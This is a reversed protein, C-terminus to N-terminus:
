LIGEGLGAIEMPKHRRDKFARPLMM